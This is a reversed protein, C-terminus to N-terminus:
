VHTAKRSWLTGEITQKLRVTTEEIWEGRRGAQVSIWLRRQQPWWTLEVTGSPRGRKFHWHVCGPYKVLTGKLTLTLGEATCCAEVVTEVASVDARPALRVETQLM